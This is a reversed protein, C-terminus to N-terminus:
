RSRARKILVALRAVALALILVDLWLDGVNAGRECSTNIAGNAGTKSRRLATLVCTGM